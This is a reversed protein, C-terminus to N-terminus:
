LPRLQARNENREKKWAECKAEWDPWPYATDTGAPEVKAVVKVAKQRAASELEVLLPGWAHRVAEYGERVHPLNHDRRTAYDDFIVISGVRLMPWALAFDTLAGWAWHLGDVYLVDVPRGQLKQAVTRLGHFSEERVWTWRRGIPELREHAMAMIRDVEEKPHRPPDPYYPDVGFGLSEPHTLVNNAVWSASAGGWCGIEVYVIPKGALPQLTPCFKHSVRAFWKDLRRITQEDIM